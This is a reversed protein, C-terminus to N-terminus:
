NEANLIQRFNRLSLEIAELVPQEVEDQEVVFWVAGGARAAKVIGRLDLRGTGVPAFTRRDDKTMDKIHLLPVRGAYKRLHAIPDEGGHQVWYVDVEAKVLNPDAAAFLSDLLYKGNVKKFEFDHNHYCLQLGEKKITAGIAELKRGFESFGEVGREQYNEPMYSCVVYQNGLELNYKIVSPLESELREFSEHVGSCQLGVDGLIKKVEKSSFGKPESTEVANYGIKAVQAVTGPFDKEALNRVTYLQLSVPTEGPTGLKPVSPGVAGLKLAKLGAGAFILRKAFRRRTMSFKSM